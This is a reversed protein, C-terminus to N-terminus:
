KGDRIRVAAKSVAPILAAIVCLITDVGITTFNYMFSYAWANAYGAEAASDAFFIAGSLVGCLMRCFGGVGAGLALSKPFFGALGLVTFSLFYDLVFQVPHVVYAGQVVQLLSYAFGALLGAAPGYMWAFVFIPLMSFLTISGGMPMSFLKIYSLVFALAICLAGQVKKEVTPAANVHKKNLVALVAILTAVAVIAGIFMWLETGELKALKKLLVFEM